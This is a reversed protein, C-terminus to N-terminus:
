RGRRRRGKRGKQRPAPRRQRATRAPPHPLAKKAKKGHRAPAERLNLPRDLALNLQRRAVDVSAIRVAVSDGIRYKRGTREGRIEGLHAHVEWWDDGLHEMRILGEVLFRPSQVFMGFNTVGTVVGEFSEGVQTALFQLVLVERLEDEAAQAHRERESCHDSLATLASLDEPPRDALRRRCYEALLRHVTLDPYRRIPSTFHCYHTSGLAFHGIAMPSYEAQQFTKLVALNVAYSEPRGKVRALLDQIERRSPKPSLAHGCARVFSALQKGGVQDPAPHIRRMFPRNLSDLLGAVAENAEVMFMEILTHTYSADQPAADVVRNREDFVLQVEPLDLHLMGAKIRRAEIARALRNLDGLLSVVQPKEGGTQGDIIEQARVYTLRRTSSIVTEAFRNGLIEGADDYTIFASKCFRKQGEQLSCVGNSLVEPLMPLVTRPFYVSTARSRAEEDLAAGQRVFHSVDAIHVGLVWRGHRDRQLSIADDFDRADPPDITVIPIGTLDERGEAADPDFAEIAARADDLVEPAFVDALGHARIVARTEVEIHGKEGLTEVIVGVPLEGQKPYQLVEVVVKDGAKPGAEGIDRILIPPFTEKGETMVFWAEPARELTGVYRNKGRELIQVIQGAFIEKGERKGRPIVRAVVRDGNLAGGAADPPIFLDGHANPTEPILFGFGRPNPRFRGVIRGAMDPLTLADRAGAMVRGSDRLVKVAERFTSYEEDAVGMLRALQRPKLPQYDRSSLYKIIADMFREPM